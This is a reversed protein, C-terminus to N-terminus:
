CIQDKAVEEKPVEAAEMEEEKNEADAKVPEEVKLSQKSISPDKKFSKDSESSKKSSKENEDKTMENFTRKKSGTKSGVPSESAKEPNVAEETPAQMESASNNEKVVEDAKPTSEKQSEETKTQEFDTGAQAAESKGVEAEVKKSAEGVSEDVDGKTQVSAQSNRSM